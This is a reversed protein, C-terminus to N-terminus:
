YFSLLTWHFELLIRTVDQNVIEPDVGVGHDPGKRSWPRLGGRLVSFGLLLPNEPDPAGMKPNPRASGAGLPYPYVRTQQRNVILFNLHFELLTWPRVKSLHRKERILIVPAELVDSKIRTSEARNRANVAALNQCTFSWRFLCSGVMFWDLVVSELLLFRFPRTKKLGSKSSGLWQVIETECLRNRGDLLPAQWMNLRREEPELRVFDQTLAEFYYQHFCSDADAITLIVMSNDVKYADQSQQAKARFGLFM